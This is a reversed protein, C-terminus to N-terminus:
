SLAIYHLKTYLRGDCGSGYGMEGPLCQLHLCLANQSYSVGHMPLGHVKTDIQGMVNM